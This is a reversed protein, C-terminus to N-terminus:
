GSVAGFGVARTTASGLDVYAIRQGPVLLRRGKTDSLDLLSSSEIAERVKALVEDPSENSEISVERPVETIGIKIDM